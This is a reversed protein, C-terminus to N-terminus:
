EYKRIRYLTDRWKKLNRYPYSMFSKSFFKFFQKFNKERFEIGALEDYHVSLNYSLTKLETKDRELIKQICLIHNRKIQKVSNSRLFSTQHIRYAMTFESLYGIHGKKSLFYFMPYDGM